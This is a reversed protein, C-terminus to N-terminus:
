SADACLAYVVFYGTFETSRNVAGIEWGVAKTRSDDLIPRDLGIFLDVSSGYTRYGGGVPVEGDPCNVWRSGSIGPGLATEESEKYVYGSVGAPGQAGTAGVPGAPGQPGPQGQQNWTLTRESSSCKAKAPDIVRLAGSTSNYCGTIVGQDDPISALATGAGAIAAAGVAISAVALRQRRSTNIRNM